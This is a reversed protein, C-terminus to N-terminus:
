MKWWAPPPDKEQNEKSSDESKKNSSSDTKAKSLQKASSSPFAISPAPSMRRRHHARAATSVQPVSSFTVEPSPTRTTQTTMTASKSSPDRLAFNPIHQPVPTASPSSGREYVTREGIHSKNSNSPPEFYPSQFPTNSRSGGVIFPASTFLQGPDPSLRGSEKNKRMNVPMFVNISNDSSASKLLRRPQFSGVPSPSRTRLPSVSINSNLQQSREIHEIPRPIICRPPSVSRNRDPSIRINQKTHVIIPTPRSLTKTTIEKDIENICGDIKSRIKDLKANLSQLDTM